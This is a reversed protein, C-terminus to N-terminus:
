LKQGIYLVAWSEKWGDKGKHRRTNDYGSIVEKMKNSREFLVKLGTHTYRFCDVPVDHYRWSFLTIHINLGGKKTIRICEESALWPTEIHEFVSTSFVVDYSNDLIHPCNCIDGYIINFKSKLMKDLELITYDYGKMFTYRELNNKEGTGGGVDLMSPKNHNKHYIALHKRATPLAELLHVKSIWKDM